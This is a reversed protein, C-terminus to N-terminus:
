YAPSNERMLKYISDKMQEAKSGSDIVFQLCWDTNNFLPHHNGEPLIHLQWNPRGKMLKKVGELPATPDKDGHICIVPIRDPLRDAEKELGVRYIVEWLTSTFSRWTHKVMDKVVEKPLSTLIFPLIWGFVRRTFVCALAAITYNTIFWQNRQRFYHVADKESGYFPISLLILKNVQDPYRAAYGIALITGLSHGVLTVEGHCEIVSHLETLHRELTYKTWPKPSNGFGLPDVLILKQDASLHEVRSKWYRTTGGLGPIFVVPSGNKGLVEHYLKHNTM